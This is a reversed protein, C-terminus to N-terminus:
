CCGTGAAVTVGDITLLGTIAAVNVGVASAVRCSDKWAGGCITSTTRPPVTQQATTPDLLNVVKQSGMDLSGVAAVWGHVHDSRSASTSGGGVAAAGPSNNALGSGATGPNGHAHDSRAVTAAVGNAATTNFATEQTVAGFAPEGHKIGERAYTALTGVVPADGIAQTTVTTAPVAGAGGQAAVWGSGNYWYLINATSDYYIQGKIPSSPASGLNQVVGNRLENKALDIPQYFVPM